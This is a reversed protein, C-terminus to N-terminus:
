RRRWDQNDGGRFHRLRKRREHELRSHYRARAKEDNWLARGMLYVAPVAVGVESWSSLTLALMVVAAVWAVTTWFIAEDFKQYYSSDM